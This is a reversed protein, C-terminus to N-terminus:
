IITLADVTSRTNYYLWDDSTMSDYITNYVYEIYFEYDMM